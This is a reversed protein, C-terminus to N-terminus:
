RHLLSLEQERDVFPGELSRQLRRSGHLGLGYRVQRLGTLSRVHELGLCFQRICLRYQTLGFLVESAQSRESFFFSAGFEVEIRGVGRFFWGPRLDLRVLCVHRVQCARDLVRDFSRLSFYRGRLGSDRLGLQIQTIATDM